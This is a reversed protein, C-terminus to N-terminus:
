ITAGDTDIYTINTYMCICTVHPFNLVGEPRMTKLCSAGHKRSVHDRM